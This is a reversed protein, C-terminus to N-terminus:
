AVQREFYNGPRGYDGLGAAVYDTNHLAALTDVMAEYHARREAPTMGPLAGDWLSRGEVLEMVYFM